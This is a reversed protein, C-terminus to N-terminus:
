AVEKLKDTKPPLRLVFTAGKGAGDSEAHLTGGLAIAANCCWHLGLGGRRHARTSYGRQFISKMDKRAIGEGNDSVRIEVQGALSATKAISLTLEPNTNNAMAELANWVLNSVIQRLITRNGHVPENIGSLTLSIQEKRTALISRAVDEAIARADIPELEINSRSYKEFGTIIEEISKSAVEIEDSINKVAEHAAWIKPANTTLYDLLRKQRAIPLNPDALEDAAAKLKALIPEDVKKRVRWALTNIPSLGNRVNHLTGSAWEAMGNLYASDALADRLQNVQEAMSNFSKALRGIEDNSHEFDTRRIEGKDGATLIHAELRGLRTLVIFYALLSLSILVAVGTLFMLWTASQIARNGAQSVDRPTYASIQSLPQQNIDTLVSTTTVADEGAVIELGTPQVKEPLAQIAFDVGTLQKIAETDVFKATWVAGAPEGSRDSRLIPATAIVMIGKSTQVLGSVPERSEQGSLAPHKFQAGLIESATFDPLPEGTEPDFAPAWLVTGDKKVIAMADINLGSLASVPEALNATYFRGANIDNVYDHQDDWAAWDIATTRLKAAVNEIGDIVRKHNLRSGELEIREFSPRITTNLVALNIALSAVLVGFIGLNLKTAIRM